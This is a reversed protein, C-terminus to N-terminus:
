LKPPSERGARIAAVRESIWALLELSDPSLKCERSIVVKLTAAGGNVHCGYIYNLLEDSGFCRHRRSKWGASGM